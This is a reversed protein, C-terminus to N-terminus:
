VGPPDVGRKALKMLDGPESSAGACASAGSGAASEAAPSGLGPGAGLEDFSGTGSRGM